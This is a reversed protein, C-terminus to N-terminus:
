CVAIRFALKTKLIFLTKKLISHDMRKLAAIAVLAFYTLKILNM